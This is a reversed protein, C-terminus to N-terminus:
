PQRTWVMGPMAVMLQWAAQCFDGGSSCSGVEVPEMHLEDGEIRYHFQNGGIEFTEPDVISWHGDDVQQGLADLSGFTGDENFFHSHKVTVAGACPNAPDSVQAPDEIGPLLGNGVVTPLIQDDM